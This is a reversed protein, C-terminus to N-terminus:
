GQMKQLTGELLTATAEMLKIGIKDVHRNRWSELKTGKVWRNFAGLAPGTHVQFNVKHELDGAFAVQSSYSFYWRFVLAMKHRPKEEAKKIEESKGIKKFYTKTEKWIESIPKKFYSRELQWITKQPIEDLSNHHNYLNYLNNARAPFLVGKKLVQVKAGIEFM